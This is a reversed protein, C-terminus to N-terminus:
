CFACYLIKAQLQLVSKLLLHGQLKASMQYYLFFIIFYRSSEFVRTGRGPTVWLGFLKQLPPKLDQTLKLMSQLSRSFRKCGFM